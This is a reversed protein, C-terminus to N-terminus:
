RIVRELIVFSEIHYTNPFFDLAVFRKVKYDRKCLSGLDRSLTTPDCSVYIINKPKIKMLPVLSKFMGDRPPDAIILDYQDNQKAARWLFKETDGAYYNANPINGKQVNYKAAEIAKKSFEIGDIMRKGDALPLSLNGSGCFLDLIKGPNLEDVSEKVLRRVTHNHPINIQQFMGAATHFKVGLDTEFEVFPATPLDKTGGIWAVSSLERFKRIILDVPFTLDDPDYVSILIHPEMPSKSPLDQMEFRFKIETTIPHKILDGKFSVSQLTGIFANIRDCAIVCTKIGVFDRSSRKFYGVKLSGDPLIRARLLIRNRYGNDIPSPLTEVDITESLKGIRRLANTVFQNKWIMQQAYPVGQWQCGGCQNSVECPSKGRHISPEKLGIVRAESYRDTSETVAVEALDGEIGDEVFYVKGDHRAVGKGGFAMSDIRVELTKPNNPPLNENLM